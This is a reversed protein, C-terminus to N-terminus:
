GRQTAYGRDSGLDCGLDVDRVSDSHGGHGSEKTTREIGDCGNGISSAQM